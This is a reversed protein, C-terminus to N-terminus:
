VYSQMKNRMQALDSCEDCLRVPITFQGVVTRNGSCTNCVVAGCHRCHHKRTFFTFEKECLMCAPAENDPIWNQPEKALRAEELRADGFFAFVAANRAEQMDNEVLRSPPPKQTQKLFLPGQVSSSRRSAAHSGTTGSGNNSEMYELISSRDNAGKKPPVKDNGFAKGGFAIKNSSSRKSSGNDGMGLFSLRRRPTTLAPQNPSPTPSPPPPAKYTFIVPNSTQGDVCVIARARRASVIPSSRGSRSPYAPVRCKLKSHETLVAISTATVTHLDESKSNKVEVEPASGKSLEKKRDDTGYDHRSNKKHVKWDDYIITITIKRADSGFNNGTLILDGGFSAVESAVSIEPSEYSFISSGVQGCVDVSIPIDTGSGPPIFFELVSHDRLMKIRNFGTKNRPSKRADGNGDSPNKQIENRISGVSSQANGVTMKILGVDTGFNLGTVSIRGGSTPARTCHQIIPKDYSIKTEGELGALKEATASHQGVGAEYQFPNEHNTPEDGNYTSWHM